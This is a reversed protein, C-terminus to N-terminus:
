IVMVVIGQYLINRPHPLNGITTMALITWYYSLLYLDVIDPEGSGESRFMYQRLLLDPEVSGESRFMYQRLLIDPEGSIYQRLFLGPEM